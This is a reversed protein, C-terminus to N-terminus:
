IPMNPLATLNLLREIHQVYEVAMRLFSQDVVIIEALVEAAPVNEDVRGACHQSDSEYQSTSRGTSGMRSGAQQHQAEQAKQPEGETRGPYGTRILSVFSGFLTLKSNM